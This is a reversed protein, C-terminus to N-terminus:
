RPDDGPALIGEIFAVFARAKASVRRGTPFVAWLDISPLTWEQLVARVVGRELEPAFFREEYKAM